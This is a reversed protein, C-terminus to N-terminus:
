CIETRVRQEKCVDSITRDKIGIRRYGISEILLVDLGARRSRRNGSNSRGCSGTGIGSSLCRNLLAPDARDASVNIFAFLKWCIEDAGPAIM